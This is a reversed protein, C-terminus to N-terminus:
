ESGTGSDGIGKEGCDEKSEQKEVDPIRRMKINMNYNCEDGLIADIMYMIEHKTGKLELDMKVVSNYGTLRPKPVPMMPEEEKKVPTLKIGFHEELIEEDTKKAEAKGIFAAWRDDMKSKPGRVVKPYALVIHNKENHVKFNNHNVRLMTLIDTRRAGYSDICHQLYEQQLSAPYTNLARMSTIPRSLDITRCPGNMKEKEKKTLYDSPFMCRKTKSGNKKHRAGTKLQSRERVYQKFVYSEDTM